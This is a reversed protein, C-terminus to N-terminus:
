QHSSSPESTNLPLSGASTPAMSIFAMSLPMSWTTLSTEASVDPGNELHGTMALGRLPRPLRDSIAEDSREECHRATESTEASVHVMVQYRDASSSSAPGNELYSEALMALADARRKAFPELTEASVDKVVQDMGSELAKMLMAGVEAPLRGKFVLSGDEDWWYDFERNEQQIGATEPENLKISRRYSRVLTELMSATGHLAINLLYDESEANAVRTMARVKSYSVKGARFAASIKPLDKLARAVRVKERAANMGIGCKWNLWHACSMLGPGAWLEEEDFERVKVLFDYTAATILSYLETIEDALVEARQDHVNIIPAVAAM